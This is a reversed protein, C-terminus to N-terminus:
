AAAVGVGNRALDARLQAANQFHITRIGLKQPAVLNEPRDDIFICEVPPRRVVDLALRYIAEGPKRLGVNCSSFFLTFNHALDFKEIRYDNLERGENNLVAMLYKKSRTLEDLIPRTEVKECSGALIFNTFEEISFPRARYFIVQKLYEDLSTHGEEYAPFAAEHRAEFDAMDLQFRQAALERAHEDWGNSLIVGGVDWFLTTVNNQDPQTPVPPMPM